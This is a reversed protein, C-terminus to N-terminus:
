QKKFIDIKNGTKNVCHVGYSIELISLAEMLNNSPLVGTFRETADIGPHLRIDVRYAEELQAIVTSLPSGALIIEHRMWATNETLDTDDELRLDGTEKDFIACQNPHVLVQKGTETATFLVLGKLLSLEQKRDEKRAKLNFITGLVKVQFGDADIVFPCDKNRSVNFYAEGDIVVKREKRNFTGPECMLNSSENLTVTTGDPLQVKTQEGAGTSITMAGKASAIETHYQRYFYTTTLFLIPAIFIAAWGLWRYKSARPYPEFTMLESEPTDEEQDIGIRSLVRNYVDGMLEEQDGAENFHGEKWDEDIMSDLVSDSCHATENRLSALEEPSITNDIYKHFLANM